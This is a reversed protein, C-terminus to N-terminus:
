ERDDRPAGHTVGIERLLSSIKTAMPETEDLYHIDLFVAARQIDERCGNWGTIAHVWQEAENLKGFLPAHIKTVSGHPALSDFCNALLQISPVGPERCVMHWLENYVHGPEVKSVVVSGLEASKGPPKSSLRYQAQEVLTSSSNLSTNNPVALVSKIGPLPRKTTHIPDSKVFRITPEDIRKRLEWCATNFDEPTLGSEEAGLLMRLGAYELLANNPGVLNDYQVCHLLLDICHNYNYSKM